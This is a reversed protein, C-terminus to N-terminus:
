FPAQSASFSHFRASDKKRKTCGKCQLARRPRLQKRGLELRLVPQAHQQAVEPRVHFLQVPLLPQSLARSAIWKYRGAM